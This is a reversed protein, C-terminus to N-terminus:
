ETEHVSKSGLLPVMFGFSKLREQHIIGSDGICMPLTAVMPAFEELRSYFGLYSGIKQKPEENDSHWLPALFGIRIISAGADYPGKPPYPPPPYPAKTGM